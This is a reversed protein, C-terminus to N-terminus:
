YSASSGSSGSSGSASSSSGGRRGLRRMWQFSPPLQNQAVPAYAQTVEQAVPQAPAQAAQNERHIMDKLTIFKDVAQDDLVPGKSIDVQGRKLMKLLHDAVAKDEGFLAVPNLGDFKVLFRTAWDGSLYPTLAELVEVGGMLRMNKLGGHSAAQQRVTQFLGALDFEGTLTLFNNLNVAFGKADAVQVVSSTPQYFTDVPIGTHMVQQPVFAIQAQPAAVVSKAVAQPMEPAVMVSRTAVEPVAVPAQKLMVVQQLPQQKTVVEPAPVPAQKLMVVQQLPQQRTVTARAPAAAVTMVAVESPVTVTQQSQLSPQLVVYQQKAKPQVPTPTLTLQGEVQVRFDAAGFDAAGDKTSLNMTSVKGPTILSQIADQAFNMTASGRNPVVLNMNAVKGPVLLNEVADQSFNMTSGRGPVLVNEVATSVFALTSTTLSSTKVNDSLGTVCRGAVM